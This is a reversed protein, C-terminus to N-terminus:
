NCTEGSTDCLVMPCLRLEVPVSDCFKHEKLKDVVEHRQKVYGEIDLVHSHQFM